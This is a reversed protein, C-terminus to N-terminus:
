SRSRSSRSRRRQRHEEDGGAGDDVPRARRAVGSKEIADRVREVIHYDRELLGLRGRGATLDDIYDPVAEAFDNVERVLTPVFTASIAIIALSRASTSSRSPPAAAGSGTSAHLWEVAPNLAM